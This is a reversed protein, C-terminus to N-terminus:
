LATLTTWPDVELDGPDEAGLESWDFLVSGVGVEVLSAASRVSGKRGADDADMAVVVRAAGAAAVLEAQPRHLGSGFVAVAAAGPPPGWRHLAMVDSAGEVLVLTHLSSPVLHHGFLLRSVPVARPYLYKPQGDPRRLVFGHLAVGDPGLIPLTPLGTVPDVGTEFRRATEEGFRDAWYQGYGLWANTLDIASRRLVPVPEDAEMVKLYSLTHKGEPTKGGAGCAFCHWVMRDVNVSASANTDDHEPCNFPREIGRGEEIAERLSIWSRPM